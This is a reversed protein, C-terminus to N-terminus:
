FTVLAQWEIQTYNVPMSVAKLYPIAKTKRIKFASITTCELSVPM